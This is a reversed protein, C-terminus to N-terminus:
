WLLASEKGQRPADAPGFRGNRGCNSGFARVITNVSGSRPRMDCPVAAGERALLGPFPWWSYARRKPDRESSLQGAPGFGTYATAIVVVRWVTCRHKRQVHLWDCRKGMGHSRQSLRGAWSLLTLTPSSSARWSM